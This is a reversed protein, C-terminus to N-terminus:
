RVRGLRDFSPRGELPAHEEIEGFRLRPTGDTEFVVVAGPQMLLDVGRAFCWVPEDAAPDVFVKTRGSAFLRVETGPTRQVAVAGAANLDALALGRWQELRFPAPGPDTADPAERADGSTPAPLPPPEEPTASRRSPDADRPARPLVEVRVGVRDPLGGISGVEGREVREPFAGAREPLPEGEGADGGVEAGGRWPWEGRGDWARANRADDTPGAPPEEIRLSSGSYVTVPPRAQSADGHWTLVMPTGAHHRLELPGGPLGRLHWAGVACDMRWGGPLHVLHEGRRVEVDAWALDFIRWELGDEPFTPLDSRPAGAAGARPSWQLAAPGWLHVSARGPWSLMVESGAGVEVHGAGEVLAHEARRLTQEARSPAHVVARGKVVEVRALGPHPPVSEQAFCPLQALPALVLLAATSRRM